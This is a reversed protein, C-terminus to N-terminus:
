VQSIHEPDNKLSEYLVSGVSSDPGFRLETKRGYWIKNKADYNTQHNLIM